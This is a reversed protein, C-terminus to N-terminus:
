PEVVKRAAPFRLVPHGWEAELTGAGLEAQGLAGPSRPGVHPSIIRLM